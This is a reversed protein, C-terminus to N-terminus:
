RGARERGRRPEVLLSGIRREARSTAPTFVVEYRGPREILLDFVAPTGPVAASLRGLGVLEVQGPRRAAVTVILHRGAIVRRAADEQSSGRGARFEVSRAGDFAARGPESTAEGRASTRTTDLQGPPASRRILSAAAASLFVLLALLLLIRRLQVRRRDYGRLAENEIM